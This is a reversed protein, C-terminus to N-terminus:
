PRTRRGSIPAASYDLFAAWAVGKAQEIAATDEQGYHACATFAAEIRALVNDADPQEKCRAELIVAADLRAQKYAAVDDVFARGEMPRGVAMGESDNM